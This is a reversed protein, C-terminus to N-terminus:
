SVREGGAFRNPSQYVAFEFLGSIKRVDVAYVLETILARALRNLLTELQAGWVQACSCGGLAM